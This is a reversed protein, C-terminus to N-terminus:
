PHGGKGQRKLKTKWVVSSRKMKEWKMGLANEAECEQSLERPKMLTAKLHYLPMKAM